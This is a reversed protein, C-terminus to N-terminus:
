MESRRVMAVMELIKLHKDLPRLVSRLFGKQLSHVARLAFAVEAQPTAQAEWVVPELDSKKLRNARDVLRDADESLAKLCDRLETAATVVESGFHKHVTLEPAAENKWQRITVEGCWRWEIVTANKSLADSLSREKANARSLRGLLKQVAEVGKLM